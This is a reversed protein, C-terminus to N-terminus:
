YTELLLHVSFVRFNVYSRQLFFIIRNKMKNKVHENPPESTTFLSRAAAIWKIFQQENEILGVSSRACFADNDAM